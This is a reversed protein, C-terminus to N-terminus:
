PLSRFFTLSVYVMAFVALVSAIWTLANDFTNIHCCSYVVGTESLPEGCEACPESAGGAHCEHHCEPCFGIKSFRNPTTRLLKLGKATLLVGMFIVLGPTFNGVSFTYLLFAGAYFFGSSVLFTYADRRDKLTKSKPQTRSTM